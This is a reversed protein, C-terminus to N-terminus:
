LHVPEPYRVRSQHRGFYLHPLYCKKTSFVKFPTGLTTAIIKVVEVHIYMHMVHIKTHRGICSSVFLSIAFTGFVNVAFSEAGFCIGCFWCRGVDNSSSGLGHSRYLYTAIKFSYAMFLSSMYECIEKTVHEISPQVTVTATCCM